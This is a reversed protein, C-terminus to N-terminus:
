KVTNKSKKYKDKRGLTLLYADFSKKKGNVITNGQILVNEYNYTCIAYKSIKKFENNVIKMGTYLDKDCGHNTGVGYEFDDFTCGSIKVNKTKTGDEKGMLDSGAVGKRTSEIQIAEGVNQNGLFTCDILQINKAGGFEIFHANDKKKPQYVFTTDQFTIDQVHSFTILSSVADEPGHGADFTGGVIKINKGRRYGGITYGGGKSTSTGTEKRPYGVQLMAGIAYGPHKITVGNLDLTTNSYIHLGYVLTYTGEKVKIDYENEKDDKAQDLYKQIEAGSYQDQEGEPEVTLSITEAHVKDMQFLFCFLFIVILTMFERRKMYVGKWNTIM